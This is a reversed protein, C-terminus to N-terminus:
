STKPKKAETPPAGGASRKSNGTSPVETRRKLFSPRRQPTALAQAAQLQAAHTTGEAEKGKPSEMTADKVAQDAVTSDQLGRHPLVAAAQRIAFLQAPMSGRAAGHLLAAGQLGLEPCRKEAVYRLVSGARQVADSTPDERDMFYRVRDCVRLAVGALEASHTADCRLLAECFFEAVKSSETYIPAKASVETKFTDLRSLFHVFCAVAFDLLEMQSGQWAARLSGQLMRQAAERHKKLPVLAFVTPLTTCVRLREAPKLKSAISSKKMTLLSELLTEADITPRDSAMSAAFRGALNALLKTSLQMCGLRLARLSACCAHVPVPDFWAWSGEGGASNTLALSESVVSPALLVDTVDETSGTVAMLDAAACQVDSKEEDRGSNPTALVQRAEKHWMEFIEADVQPFDEPHRKSWELLAASLQLALAQLKPAVDTTDDKIEQAWKLLEMCVMSREGAPLLLLIKAVKRSMSARSGRSDGAVSLADLLMQSLGQVSLQSDSAPKQLVRKAIAALTQLIVKADEASSEPLQKALEGAFPMFAGPFSKSLSSITARSAAVLESCPTELVEAGGKWIDLLQAVQDPLLWTSLLARRVLPALGGLQHVRLLRDLEQLSDGLQSTSEQILPDLLKELQKWLAKDRVADFTGLHKEVAEPRIYKDDMTPSLRALREFIEVQKPLEETHPVLAMSSAEQTALPAGKAIRTQIYQYLLAHSDRKKSFLVALGHKAAESGQAASTYFGLMALARQGDSLGAGCGLVHQEIHEELQAVYGLRSSCFAAYAECLLQPIWNLKQAEQYHGETWQVLAHRAYLQASAEACAERVRPKKDLIRRCADPLIPLTFSLGAESKLAADMILEVARSRIEDKPDLCREALRERLSEAAVVTPHKEPVEGQQIASQMIAGTGELATMRVGDHADGLRERFRDVLSSNSAALATSEILQQHCHALIQGIVATTACRREPNPNQLDAQLNPLVRAVLSPHVSYLEYTACLLGELREQIMNGGVQVEGIRQKPEEMEAFLAKNVYDNITAAASQTALGSLVRRVLGTAHQAAKKPDIILEELLEGLAKKPIEDAEGLINTLLPAMLNELQNYTESVAAGKVPLVGRAASLCTTVLSVIISEPEPCDFVLMFGRIETLRELLGFADTYSSDRPDRLLALQELFLELIPQMREKELPPSPVFIRLVEALCEAAWCRVDASQHRMLADAGMARACDELGNGNGQKTQRLVTFAEQLRQLAEERPVTSAAASKAKPAAASSRQPRPMTSKRGAAM